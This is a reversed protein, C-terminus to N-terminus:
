YMAKFVILAVCFWTFHIPPGERDAVETRQRGGQRLAPTGSVHQNTGETKREETVVFVCM